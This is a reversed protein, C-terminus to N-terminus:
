TELYINVKPERIWKGNRLTINEKWCVIENIFMDSLLMQADYNNNEKALVQVKDRDLYRFFLAGLNIAHLSSTFLEILRAVEWIFCVKKTSLLFYNKEVKEDPLYVKFKVSDIIHGLYHIEQSPILVSKDRNVVFGLNELLNVLFKADCKAFNNAQILSDDIYYFSSIGQKFVRPASAM